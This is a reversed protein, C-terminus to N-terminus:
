DAAASATFRRASLASIDHRTAGDLTLEALIEGVTPAFKFGRGSFGCGIIVRETDPHHDIVFDGDPTYTCMCTIQRMLPGNAGPLYTDLAQRLRDIEEADITRRITRATTVTYNSLGIKLGVEDVAPMGYFSGEPVDLLFDPAGNEARWLDPRDPEFYGNVSRKVQLPLNLSALLEGAWPGATVILYSATYTGRTTEVRVGSGTATWAVVETQDQITAGHRQALEIHALIGAESRLFGAEAEYTTLMGDQYRIGPFREALDQEDLVTRMGRDIMKRVAAYYAPASVPDVISVEGLMRLLTQGSEEEVERWLEFARTSLPVYLDDQFSSKRIMRHYGHSSGQDHGPKFMELGLVRAGRKAVQYTTASGMAGLGVVIVDFADNM